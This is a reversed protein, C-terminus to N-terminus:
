TVVDHLEQRLTELPKGGSVDNGGVYLKVDSFDRLYTQQVRRDYTKSMQLM